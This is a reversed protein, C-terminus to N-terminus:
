EAEPFGWFSFNVNGYAMHSLYHPNQNFNNKNFLSIQKIQSYFNM